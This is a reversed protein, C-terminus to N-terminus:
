PGFREDVTTAPIPPWFGGRYPFEHQRPFQRPDPTVRGLAEEDISPGSATSRLRATPMLSLALAQEQSIGILLREACMKLMAERSPYTIVEVPDSAVSKAQARDSWIDAAASMLQLAALKGLYSLVVVPLTDEEVTSIVTTMVRAKVVGIAISIYAPGYSESEMLLKFTEGGIFTKTYDAILGLGTADQAVASTVQLEEVKSKTTTIVGNNWDIVILYLDAEVPVVFTAIYNGSGSPREVVGAETRGIAVSGTAAKIVQYGVSQGTPIGSQTITITEGPGAEFM